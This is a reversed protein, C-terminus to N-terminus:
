LPSLEQAPHQSMRLAPVEPLFSSCLVLSGMRCTNAATVKPGRQLLVRCHLCPCPPPQEGWTISFPFITASCTSDKFVWGPSRTGKWTDVLEEFLVVLLLFCRVLSGKLHNINLTYCAEWRSLRNVRWPWPATDTEACVRLSQAGEASVWPVCVSDVVLLPVFRLYM